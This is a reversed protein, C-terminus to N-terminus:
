YNQFEKRYVKFYGYKDIFKIDNLINNQKFCYEAIKTYDPYDYDLFDKIHSKIFNIADDSEGEATDFDLNTLYTRQKNYQAIYTFEIKIKEKKYSLEKVSTIDAM